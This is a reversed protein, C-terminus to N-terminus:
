KTGAPVATSTVAPVAPVAPAAPVKSDVKMEPKVTAASAPAAGMKEAAAPKAGATPAAAKPTAESIKEKAMDKGAEKAMEEPKATAATAAAAPTAVAPTAVAPTAVVAAPKAAEVVKTAGAVSPTQAFAATSFAAVVVLTIVKKFMQIEQPQNSHTREAAENNRTEAKGATVHESALAIDRGSYAQTVRLLWLLDLFFWKAKGLMAKM